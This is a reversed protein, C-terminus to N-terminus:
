LVRIRMNMKNPHATDTYVFRAPLSVKPARQLSSHRRSQLAFEFCTGHSSPSSVDSNSHLLDIPGPLLNGSASSANSLRGSSVASDRRGGTQLEPQADQSIRLAAPSAPVQSSNLNGHSSPAQNPASQSNPGPSSSQASAPATATPASAYDNPTQLLTPDSPDPQTTLVEELALKLRGQRVPRTVIAYRFTSECTIINNYKFNYNNNDNSINMHYVYNPCSTSVSAICLFGRLHHHCVQLDAVYGVDDLLPKLTLLSPSSCFVAESVSM